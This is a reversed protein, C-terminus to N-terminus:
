PILYEFIKINEQTWYDKGKNFKRTLPANKDNREQKIRLKKGDTGYIVQGDIKFVTEHHTSVKKRTKNKSKTNKAKKTSMREPLDCYTEIPQGVFPEYSFM